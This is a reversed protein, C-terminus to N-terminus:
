VNGEREKPHHSSVSIFRGEITNEVFLPMEEVFRAM